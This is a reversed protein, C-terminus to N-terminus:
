RKKKGIKKKLERVPSIYKMTADIVIVVPVFIDLGNKQIGTSEIIKEKENFPSKRTSVVFLM